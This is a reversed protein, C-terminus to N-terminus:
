STGVVLFVYRSTSFWTDPGVFSINIDKLGAKEYFTQVEKVSPSYLSRSIRFKDFWDKEPGAVVVKGKKKVVRTMEKITRAANPFYEIAGASIVADFKDAQFPLNDADGRVFMVYNGLKVTARKLQEPTLDIGIVNGNKVERLIGETTYGTGCGVDLVLSHKHINAAKIIRTRMSNTYFAPNIADYIKSLFKYFNIVRSKEALFATPKSTQKKNKEKWLIRLSAGIGIIAGLIAAEAFYLTNFLKRLM